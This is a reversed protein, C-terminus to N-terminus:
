ALLFLFCRRCSSNPDITTAVAAPGGGRTAGLVGFVESFHPLQGFAPSKTAAYHSLFRQVVMNPIVFGHGEAESRGAFAVGVVQQTAQNFVPGGSNGPNIAADIQAAPLLREGTLGNLTYDMMLIRSVIGRTVTVSTAGLPYGLAIVTTDLEPPEDAFAVHPMGDWFADADVTVLALDCQRSECLIRAEFNGARGHAEARLSASDRVVHSNTLIMRNGIAFGTGTGGGLTM